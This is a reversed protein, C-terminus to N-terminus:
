GDSMTLDIPDSSSRGQRGGAESDSESDSEFDSAFDSDADPPKRMEKTVEQQGCARRQDNLDDLGTRFAQFECFTTRAWARIRHKKKRKDIGFFYIRPFGEKQQVACSYNLIKIDTKKRGRLNGKREPKITLERGRESEEFRETEKIYDTKLVLFHREENNRPVTEGPMPLSPCCVDLYNSISATIRGKVNKKGTDPDIRVVIKDWDKEIPLGELIEDRYRQPNRAWWRNGKTKDQGTPEYYKKYARKLQPDKESLDKKLKAQSEPSEDIFVIALDFM